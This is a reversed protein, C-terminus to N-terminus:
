KKKEPNEAELRNIAIFTKSQRSFKFGMYALVTFLINFLLHERWTLKQIVGGCSCPLERAFLLMYGIYLTFIGMLVISMALGPQRWAPIFLFMSILLEVGPIIWSISTTFSAILPSKSLSYIFQSHDTLKSVAAYVFLFILLASIIEGIFSKLKYPM